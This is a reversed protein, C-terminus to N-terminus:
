VSMMVELLVYSIAVYFGTGIAVVINVWSRKRILNLFPILWVFTFLPFLMIDSFPFSCNLVLMRYYDIGIVGPFILALYSTQGFETVFRSFDENKEIIKIYEYSFYQQPKSYELLEVQVNKEHDIYIKVDSDITKFSIYHNGLIQTLEDISSLVNGNYKVDYLEPLDIRGWMGYPESSYQPKGIEIGSLNTSPLSELKAKFNQPYGASYYYLLFSFAYLLLLILVLAIAHKKIRM